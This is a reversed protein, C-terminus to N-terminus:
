ASVARSAAAWALASLYLGLGFVLHSGLSRLRAASPDPTRSAAVGAGILPQLVLLPFVATLLGFGLAPAPTPHALWGMGAIALFTAAFVVGIVYHAVWGVIREGAVPPAAAISDHRFRGRPLHGLWRGLLGMDLGKSRFAKAAYLVWLDLVATAGVGVAVAAVSLSFLRDM